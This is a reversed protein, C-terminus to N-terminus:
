RREGGATPKRPPAAAGAGRCAPHATRQPQPNYRTRHSPSLIRGRPPLPCPKRSGYRPSRWSAHSSVSATTCALVLVADGCGRIPNNQEPRYGRHVGWPPVRFLPAPFSLAATSTPSCSKPSSASIAHAHDGTVVSCPAASITSATTRARAGTSCPPRWATSRNSARRTTPTPDKRRQIPNASRERVEDGGSMPTVTNTHVSPSINVVGSSSPNTAVRLRPARWPCYM